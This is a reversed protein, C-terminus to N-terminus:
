DELYSKGFRREYIENLRYKEKEAAVMQKKYAKRKGYFDTLIKPIFGNIKKTYVAGSTCKIEDATPTHNPDKFLFTEPSINFQRITTPYLSAYDLTLVNNYVGPIPEFVFAGEYGESQEINKKMNPFIRPHEEDQYIYEAQVIEISKTSSFAVLLPTRMLTALAFFVDSTRLKMDIERVLVSDIGNYFVYEKKQQEWMEKFGLQHVVKKVGLVKGAVWDLALSEKPKISQDWKKFVEMYDYMCKHLPVMVPDDGEKAQQPKYKFWENTLSLFDIYMGLKKARNVLYPWDYGFWNWGTICPIPKVFNTFFDMLLSVENVHPRYVFKYDTTFQKCHETIKEAIWKQEDDTLMALGLVYVTDEYVVSITNVPNKANKPDPFGDDQVDVEIDCYATKPTNMEDFAQIMPNDPYWRRLDLMIEHVRQETMKSKLPEKIVPKFDWSQFSPDPTEGRKAYKWQYMQDQPIIYTFTKALGEKDIYSVCLFKQKNGKADLVFRGNQTYDRVETNIIM